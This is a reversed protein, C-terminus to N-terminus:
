GHIGLKLMEMLLEEAKDVQGIQICLASLSRMTVSCPRVNGEQRMWDYLRFSVEWNGVLSLAYHISGYMISSSSSSTGLVSRKECCRIAKMWKGSRALHVVVHEMVHPDFTQIQNQFVYEAVEEAVYAAVPPRQISQFLETTEVRPFGMIKLVHTCRKMQGIKKYHLYLARLAETPVLREHKTLLESFEQVRLSQPTDSRNLVEVYANIFKRSKNAQMHGCSRYMAIATHWANTESGKMLLLAKMELSGKGEFSQGVSSFYNTAITWSPACHALVDGVNYYTRWDMNSPAINQYLCVALEWQNSLAYIKTLTASTGSNMATTNRISHFLETAVAWCSIQYYEQRTELSERAMIAELKDYPCYLRLKSTDEPSPSLLARLALVPIASTIGVHYEDYLQLAVEWQKCELLALMTYAITSESHIPCCETFLRLSLEWKRFRRLCRVLQFWSHIDGWGCGELSLNNSFRLAMEWQQTFECARLFSCTTTSTFVTGSRYMGFASELSSKWVSPVPSHKPVPTVISRRWQVLLSAVNASM